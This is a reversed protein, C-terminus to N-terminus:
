GHFCKKLISDDARQDHKRAEDIGDGSAAPQDGQRAVQEGPKGDMVGNRCILHARRHPCHKRCEFKGFAAEDRPLEREGAHDAGEGTGRQARIKSEQHIRLDEHDEHQDNERRCPEVERAAIYQDCLFRRVRILFRDDEAHHSGEEEAHIIAEVAGAGAGEQQQKQRADRMKRQFLRVAHRLDDIRRRIDSREADEEQMALYEEGQADNGAEEPHCAVIQTREVKFLAARAIHLRDNKQDKRDEEALDHIFHIDLLFAASPSSKQAM